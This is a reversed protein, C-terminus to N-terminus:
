PFMTESHNDGRFGVEGNTGDGLTTHWLASTWWQHSQFPGTYGPGKAVYTAGAAGGGIVDFTNISGLYDDPPLTLNYSGTGGGPYVQQARLAVAMGIILLTLIATRTSFRNIKM